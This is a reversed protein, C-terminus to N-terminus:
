KHVSKKLPVEDPALNTLINGEKRCYGLVKVTDEDTNGVARYHGHYVPGGEDEFDIDAFHCDITDIAKDLLLYVHLHPTGDQHAEVGMCWKLVKRKPEFKELLYDLCMAPLLFCRPYTLYLEKAQIRFPAEIEM